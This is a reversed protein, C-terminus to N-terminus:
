VFQLAPALSNMNAILFFFFFISYPSLGHQEMDSSPARLMPQRLVFFHARKGRVQASSASWDKRNFSQASFVEQLIGAESSDDIYNKQFIALCRIRTYCILNNDQYTAENGM